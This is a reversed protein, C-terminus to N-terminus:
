RPRQGRKARQSSIGRLEPPELTRQFASVALLDDVSCEYTRRQRPRVAANYKAEEVRRDLAAAYNTDVALRLISASLEGPLAPVRYGRYYRERDIEVTPWVFSEHTSTCIGVAIGGGVSRFTEGEARMAYLMASAVAETAEQIPREPGFDAYAAGVIEKAPSAGITFTGFNVPGPRWFEVVEREASLHIWALGPTGDALFGALVFENTVHQDEGGASPSRLERQVERAFYAFTRTADWLGPPEPDGASAILMSRTPEAAYPGVLGLGACVVAVRAGLDYAKVALEAYRGDNWSLRSDALVAVMCLDPHDIAFASAVTMTHVHPQPIPDACPHLGCGQSTRRNGDNLKIKFVVIALRASRYRLRTEAPDGSACHLAHPQAQAGGVWKTM